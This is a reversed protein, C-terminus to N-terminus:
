LAYASGIRLLTVLVSSVATSRALSQGDSDYRGDLIDTVARGEDSLGLDEM